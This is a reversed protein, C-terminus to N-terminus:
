RARPGIPGAAQAPQPRQASGAFVFSVLVGVIGSMVVIGGLEHATWGSGLRLVVIGLYLAFYAAPFAFAFARLEIIREPSPRLRWVLLDGVVGAAIAVLSFTLQVALPTHGRMLIMAIGNLGVILTLAGFPLVGRRLGVLAIGVILASFLYVGLMARVLNSDSPKAGAGILGAYPGAFLTFFTFTGLLMGLSLVAPLQARLSRSGRNRAAVFPGSLILGAGVGLAIHSPSLLADTSTEIGYVLHWTMDFVGAFGFVFVGAVAYEYGAPIADRWTAVHPRARAVAGLVV